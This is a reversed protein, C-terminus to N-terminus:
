GWSRVHGTDLHVFDSQPYYGVGGLALEVAIDRLRATDVGSLRVDVARGALHLSNTAVGETAARLKENTTASRYGSIVEFTRGACRDALVYLTDLLQVDIDHVEGTRFDRLLREIEGIAAPIYSGEAFYTVALREGTHTHYFSLPRAELRLSQPVGSLPCCALGALLLRRRKKLMVTASALPARAAFM